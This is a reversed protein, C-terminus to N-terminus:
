NKETKRKYDNYISQTHSSFVVSEYDFLDQIM